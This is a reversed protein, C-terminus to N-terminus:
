KWIDELRDNLERLRVNVVTTIETYVRSDLLEPVSQLKELPKWLAALWVLEALIFSDGRVERWVMRTSNFWNSALTNNLIVISSYLGLGLAMLRTLRDVPIRYYRCFSLAILIVGVVGFEIGRDVKLFLRALYQHPGQHITAILAVSVLVLAAIFLVVICLRWVGPYRSLLQGCLEYIVAARLLMLIVQTVWYMVFEEKSEYGVTFSVAFRLIDCVVVASLYAVFLPMRQWVGRWWAMGCVFGEVTLVVIM